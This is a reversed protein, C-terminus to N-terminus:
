EYQLAEIFKSAPPANPRGLAALQSIVLSLALGALIGAVPVMYTLPIGQIMQVSQVFLRSMFLGMVLGFLGGILGMIGAEGSDDQRGAPATMGVARLMGIERTRELVSMTLTNIVGLAAVIM